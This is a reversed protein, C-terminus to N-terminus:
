ASIGLHIHKRALAVLQERAIPKTAYDTCGAALCRAQDERVSHATLAVIPVHSGSERMKRTSEYGDMVPMQIDMLVLDYPRGDRQAKLSQEYGALGDVATEVEFGASALARSLLMRNTAVDEVILIRGTMAGDDAQGAPAKGSPDIMELDELSGIGLRVTFVSGKGLESEIQIDGGLLQLIEHAVSLGLGSGGFRRKRSNDAQHFRDFLHAREDEPVGIGTDRIEIVLSDQESSREPEVFRVVVEGEETFKLANGVLQLLVQRLRTPDTSITAPQKSTAEIRLDIGKKDAIHRLVDVVESAVSWPNCERREVVLENAEIKALDLVDNLLALLSQSCVRLTRGHEKVEAEDLQENEILEALGLISTLPTRIEHSTNALLASKARNLRELEENHEHLQGLMRRLQLRTGEMTNALVGLEDNTRVEIRTDLDGSGLLKAHSELKALPRSVIRKSFLHLFFTVCLGLIAFLGVNDKVDRALQQEVRDTTVDLEVVGLLDGDITVPASLVFSSDSILPSYQESEAVIEGDERIIRVRAVDASLSAFKDAFAALVPYDQLIMPEVSAASVAQVLGMAQVRLERELTERRSSMGFGATLAFLFAMMFLLGVTLRTGVRIRFKM